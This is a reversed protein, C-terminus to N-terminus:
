WVTYMYIVQDARGQGSGDLGGSGSVATGVEPTMAPSGKFDGHRVLPAAARGPQQQRRQARDGATLFPLGEAIGNGFARTLWGLAGPQDAKVPWPEPLTIPRPQRIVGLEQGQEQSIDSALDARGVTTQDGSAMGGADGQEGSLVM